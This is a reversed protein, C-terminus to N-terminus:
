AHTAGGEPIQRPISFSFVAGENPVGSAWVRGGHREVIRRVNALGIGTGDFEEMRHLRQFVGFLKQVYKMNFGVGDDEVHVVTEADNQEAHVRIHAVPRNRSYKVANSLLNQMALQLFVPDARFAPMPAIDWRVDRGATEPALRAVVDRVIENLDIQRTRLAARGMQSFSLLDDVLKGAFRASEIINKLFRNGRETLNVGEYQSLLDTYGVIHRLPARLDHSVSYSFAELEKNARGLEEALEAMEEARRLVVGLLAARFELAIEIESSRWPLSTGTVIECWTDFSSRPTLRVAPVTSAIKAHPNGAWEITRVVEPRFWILYHRHIKSIPVALVGSAIRRLDAADPYCQSLSDTHFVDGHGNEALWQALRAIWEADPAEGIRTVQDDFVLAAGTANAFRLLDGANDALNAVFDPSASLAGLLTVLLRRLELRHLSEANEERAEIQLSLIQGLQECVTRVVLPVSRADHDHCSILGWLRNNVILSISMSAHTGMNKMYQVHVPSVSRLFAQTLDTPAGTLPNCPPVLPSPVYDADAILRIPNALYLARAQAPIDSAPFCHHLYAHYGDALSEAIVQGHHQGDFRYVLVRGFGTLQRIERAALDSMVTIDEEDRLTSVFRRVRPYTLRFDIGGREPAPEFELITLGDRTHATTDFAGGSPLTFTGIYFPRSERDTRDLMLTLQKVNAEGIIDALAAGLLREIAVGLFDAANRSAQVICGDSMVVALLFGYPQISGPVHIPERACLDAEAAIPTVQENM